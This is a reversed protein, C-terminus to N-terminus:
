NFFCVERINRKNKSLYKVLNPILNKTTFMLTGETIKLIHDFAEEGLTDYLPVNLFGYNWSAIDTLTWEVSNAAYLFFLKHGHNKIWSGINRM